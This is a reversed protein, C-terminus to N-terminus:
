REKKTGLKRVCLKVNQSNNHEKTDIKAKPYSKIKSFFFQIM